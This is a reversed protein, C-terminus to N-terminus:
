SSGPWVTSSAGVLIPVSLRSVLVPRGDIKTTTPELVCAKHTERPLLYYDGVRGGEAFKDQSEYGRLPEELIADGEGRHFYAVLRGSSDHGKTDVYAADLDDFANVEWATYVGVLEPTQSLIIQLIGQLNERTLNLGVKEDKVASLTSALTRAVDLAKEMQSRLTDSKARALALSQELASDIATSRSSLASTTVILGLAALCCLGAWLAMKFQVSRLQM